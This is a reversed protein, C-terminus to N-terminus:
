WWDKAQIAHLDIVPAAKFDWGDDDGFFDAPTEVPASTTPRSAPSSVAATHDDDDISWDIVYEDLKRPAGWPTGANDRSTGAFEAGDIPKIAPSTVTATHDAHNNTTDIWYTAYDEEYSRQIPTTISATYDYDDYLPVVGAFEVISSYENINTSITPTKSQEICAQLPLCAFILAYLTRM